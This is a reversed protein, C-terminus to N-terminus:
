HLFSVVFFHLTASCFWVASSSGTQRFSFCVYVHQTSASIDNIAVDIATSLM